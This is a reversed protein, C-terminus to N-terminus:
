FYSLLLLIKKSNINWRRMTENALVTQAEHGRQKELLHTAFSHLLYHHHDM